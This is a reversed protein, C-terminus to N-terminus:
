LKPLNERYITVINITEEQLLYLISYNQHVLKRMGKGYEEASRGLKPFYGLNQVLHAKMTLLFKDAKQADLTLGYIYDAQELLNRIAEQTFVVKIV